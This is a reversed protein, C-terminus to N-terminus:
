NWNRGQREDRRSRSKGVGLWHIHVSEGAAYVQRGSSERERTTTERMAAAAGSAREKAGRTRGQAARQASIWRVMSEGCCPNVCSASNWQMCQGSGTHYEGPSFTVREVKVRWVGNGCLWPGPDATANCCCGGGCPEGSWAWLLKHAVAAVAARGIKVNLMRQGDMRGLTLGFLAGGEDLLRGGGQVDPRRGVRWNHM